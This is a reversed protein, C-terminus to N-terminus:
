AVEEGNELFWKTKYKNPDKLTMKFNLQVSINRLEFIVLFPTVVSLMVVSLIVVSLMFPMIVSLMTPM